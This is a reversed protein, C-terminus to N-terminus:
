RGSEDDDVREEGDEEGEEEVGLFTGDRDYMLETVMGGHRIEVDYSVTGDPHTIEDAELLDAHPYKNEINDKIAKSLTQPDIERENEEAKVVEQQLTNVQVNPTSEESPRNEPGACSSIWLSTSLALLLKFLRIM